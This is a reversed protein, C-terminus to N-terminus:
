VAINYDIDIPSVGYKVAAEIELEEESRFRKLFRVARISRCADFGEKVVLDPTVGEATEYLFWWKADAEVNSHKLLTM